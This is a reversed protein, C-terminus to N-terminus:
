MGTGPMSPPASRSNMSWAAAPRPPMRLMNVPPAILRIPMKASPMMGYM